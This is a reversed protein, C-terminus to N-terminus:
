SMLRIGVGCIHRVECVVVVGAEAVFHFGCYVVRLGDSYVVADLDRTLALRGGMTGWTLGIVM